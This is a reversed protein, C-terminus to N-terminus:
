NWNRATAGPSPMESAFFNLRGVVARGLFAAVAPLAARDAVAEAERSGEVELDVVAAPERSDDATPDEAAEPFDVLGVGPGAVAELTGMAEAAEAPGAVPGLTLRVGGETFGTGHTREM